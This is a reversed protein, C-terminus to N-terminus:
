WNSPLSILVLGDLLSLGWWCFLLAVILGLDFAMLATRPIRNAIPYLIPDTVRNFFRFFPNGPSMLSFAVIWSLIVRILLCLILARFFLDIIWHLSFSIFMPSGKM